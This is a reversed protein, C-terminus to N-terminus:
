AIFYFNFFVNIYSVTFKGTGSPLPPPPPPPKPIDDEKTTFTRHRTTVPTLELPMPPPPPITYKTSVPTELYEPLKKDSVSLCIEKLPTTQTEKDIHIRMNTCKCCVNSSQDSNLDSVNADFITVDTEDLIESRVKHFDSIEELILEIMRVFEVWSDCCNLSEKWKSMKGLCDKNGCGELLEVQTSKSIKSVTTAAATTTKATTLVEEKITISDNFQQGTLERDLKGPTLATTSHNQLSPRRQRHTWEYM